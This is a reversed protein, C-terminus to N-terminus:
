PSDPLNFALRFEKTKRLTNLEPVNLYFLPNGDPLGACETAAEIARSRAKSIEEATSDSSTSLFEFHLGLDQCLFLILRPKVAPHSATEIDIRLQQEGDLLPQFETNLAARYVEYARKGREIDAVDAKSDQGLMGALCEAQYLVGDVAEQLSYEEVIPVAVKAAERLAEIAAPLDGKRVYLDTLTNYGGIISFRQVRYPEGGLEMGKQLEAISQTTRSIAEDIKNM